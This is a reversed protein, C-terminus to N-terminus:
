GHFNDIKDLFSNRRPRVKVNQCRLTSCFDFKVSLTFISSVRFSNINIIISINRMKRRENRFIGISESWYTFLCSSFDIMLDGQDIENEKTIRSAKKSWNYYTRTAYTERQDQHFIRSGDFCIVKSRKRKMQKNENLNMKSFGISNRRLSIM